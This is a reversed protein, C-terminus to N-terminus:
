TCKGVQSKAIGKGKAFPTRNNAIGVKAQYVYGQFGEGINEKLYYNIIQPLQSHEKKKLQFVCRWIEVQIRRRNQYIKRKYKM